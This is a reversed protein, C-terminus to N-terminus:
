WFNSRKAVLEKGQRGGSQAERLLSQPLFCLWMLVRNVEIESEATHLSYIALPGSGCRRM